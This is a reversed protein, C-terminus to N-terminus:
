NPPANNVGNWCKELEEMLREKDDALIRVEESLREIEDMAALIAPDDSSKGLRERLMDVFPNNM